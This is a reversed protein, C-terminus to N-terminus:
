AHQTLDYLQHSVPILDSDVWSQGQLSITKNVVIYWPLATNYIDGPVSHSQPSPVPPLPDQFEFNEKKLIRDRNWIYELTHIEPHACM